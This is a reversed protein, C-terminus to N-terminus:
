GAAFGGKRKREHLQSYVILILGGAVMPISYFQGRTFVLILEADPERYFEVIYRAVGYGLAFVGTLLGPSTRVKRIRVLTNLLIFLLIGELVAEYLQSPHRAIPGGTPFVMAWPVDAARGWLEGNIFNAIRGFFLGIPVACAVLDSLRLIKSLRGRSYLVIAIAVGLVGGHFSMGGSQLDFIRTWDELYVDLRYFLIYGLRGGVVVGITAWFVFEEVAHPPVGFEKWKQAYRYALLGGLAIGVVYAIGYWHIAIPGIQLAIPDITPYDM